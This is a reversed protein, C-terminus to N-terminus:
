GSTPRSIPSQLLGRHVVEHRKVSDVFPTNGMNSDPVDEPRALPVSIFNRRNRIAIPIANADASGPTARASPHRFPQLLLACTQAICALMSDIAHARPQALPSRCHRSSQRLAIIALRLAQRERRMSQAVLQEGASSLGSAALVQAGVQPMPARAQATSVAAPPIAQARRHRRAPGAVIGSQRFCHAAANRLLPADQAALKWPHRSPQTPCSGPAQKSVMVCCHVACAHLVAWGHEWGFSNQAGRQAGPGDLPCHKSM